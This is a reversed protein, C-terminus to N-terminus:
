HMGRLVRTLTSYCSWLSTTSRCVCRSVNCCTLQWDIPLKMEHTIRTPASEDVSRIIQRVKKLALVRTKPINRDGCYKDYADLLYERVLMTSISCGSKMIEKTEAVFLEMLDAPYTTEAEMWRVASRAAPTAAVMAETRGVTYVPLTTIAVDVLAIVDGDKLVVEADGVAAGNLLTANHGLHRLHQGVVDVSTM